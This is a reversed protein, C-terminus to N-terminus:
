QRLHSVTLVAMWAGVISLGGVERGKEVGVSSMAWADFLPAFGGGTGLGGSVLVAAWGVAAIGVVPPLVWAGYDTVLFGRREDGDRAPPPQERVGCACALAASLYLACWYLSDPDNYQVAAAFVFLGAMLANLFRM